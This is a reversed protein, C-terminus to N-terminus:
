LQFGGHPQVSLQGPKDGNIHHVHYGAPVEVGADHVVKRHEYVYGDAKALPNNPEWIRVYGSRLSLSRYSPGAPETGPDGKVRWRQYHTDCWGRKTGPRDCCEVACPEVPNKRRRLDGPAYFDAGNRWRAWHMSCWGRTHARKECGDVSCTADSM